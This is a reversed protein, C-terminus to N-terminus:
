PCKQTQPHRKGGSQKENRGSGCIAPACLRAPRHCCSYSACRTGCKRSWCFYPEGRLSAMWSCYEVFPWDGCGPQPQLIAPLEPEPPQTPNNGNFAFANGLNAPRNWIGAPDRTIFRGILPDLARSAIQYFGTEPDFRRGTFLFPNGLASQETLLEFATDFPDAVWNTGNNVSSALHQNGYGASGVGWLVGPVTTSNFVEVWYSGGAQAEFPVALQAEYIFEPAVVPQTISRGTAARHVNTGAVTTSLVAGPLGANNTRIRITFNDTPPVGGGYAGWWRLGRVRVPRSVSFDDAVWQGGNVDSVYATVADPSQVNVSVVPQGYDGYDAREIANGAADSLATVSSQDDTHYHFDASGRRMTVPDDGDLGTVFSALTNGQPDQEELERGGDHFIRAVSPGAAKQVRRGLADFTYLTPAATGITARVLLNRYDYQFARAGGPGSASILNGNADHQRNTEFPTATYQHVQADAPSPSTADLLYNGPVPDSTVNLRNGSGDLTYVSDREVPVVPSSVVTRTLRDAADYSYAHALRPGAIRTDAGATQNGEVNWSYARQDLVVGSGTHRNTAGAPQRAAHYAFQACTGNGNCRAEVRDLGLYFYQAILSGAAPPAPPPEICAGNCIKLVRNLGDYTRTVLRGGPYVCSIPNGAGDYTWTTVRDKPPPFAPPDLNMVERLLNCLSDYSRNALTENNRAQVMLSRGDFQRTEFTAGLVGPARAISRSVPRNLLDFSTVVVTLNADTTRVANDHVDYGNFFSENIQPREDAEPWSVTGSGTLAMTGDALRTVIRRDLADYAYRTTRGNDDTQAILRCSDDWVQSTVIDGAQLASAGNTNMDRVTLVLRDLGDFAHRVEADGWEAVQNNRSDYAFRNTHGGPEVTQTLRDLGDYTNTTSYFQPPNGLDSRDMETTVIVNGNADYTHNVSNTKPDVLSQLRNATDYVTATSYGRDDTVRIVQSNDSYLTLTTAYGDGLIAQTKPDFSLRDERTRRDMADYQLWTEALRVNGAGGNLDTLEGDLRVVICNHNADYQTRKVNGMADTTSIPRNYGDYATTTVRPGSEIGQSVRTENRNGDYDHQTTSPLSSGPARTERFLLDREDFTSAVVNFPDFGATAEGFGVRTRNRNADYAYETVVFQPRLAFAIAEYNLVGNLPHASGKERAVRAVRNLIEYDVITSQHTNTQLAGSDDRNEVDVRVLNDNADYYYDRAYRLGSGPTVERSTERVVQNLRNVTYHTDNGRAEVARVLNGVPDYEFTTTLAFGGADVIQQATYGRQPGAGYYSFADRRRHGSGNDPLWHSIVQGFVNYEWDEIATPVRHQTHLRNGRGDYTHLTHNGRADTHRTVFNVECCGGGLGGDYEFSEILTTQDGGLPGPIRRCVRLNGRSRRPGAPNLELEYVNEVVNGNPHMTRVPLSDTNWEHRTEFWDPDAPRVKGTPRNETEGTALDPVARGTYARRIVCRNGADFWFETVNGVRDNVIAKMIALGNALTPTQVHYTYNLTENTYGWVQRVVQACGCAAQPSWTNQLWAQENGDIVTLLNHNLKSDAFGKSYTYRNTKGGPFDNAAPTGTVAPAVVTKLDSFSGGPEDDRYHTYRVQRGTFDTVAAFFGDTDYSVTIIRDLTDVVGTLRGFADYNFQLANGNRDTIREIRGAAAGGGLPLFQWTGRDAFTLVFRGDPQFRGERFFQDAVFSGDPQRYFTDRRTNGDLVDVDVGNPIICINYSWDWGYGMPTVYCLCSRYKRAWVFDLGRGKICLDVQEYHFEGSFLYVNPPGCLAPRCPDSPGPQGPPPEPPEYITALTCNTQPEAPQNVRYFRSSANLPDTITAMSGNGMVEILTNWPASVLNNQYEVLYRKGAQTDFSLSFHTPGLQTNRLLPAGPATVTVPFTCQASNSSPDTAICLVLTTGIPFLSGSPPICQLSVHGSNDAAQVPYFVPTGSDKSCVCDVAVPQCQITPPEVDRCVIGIWSRGANGDDDVATIPVVIRGIPFFSGPPTPSSLTLAPDCSDAFEPWAYDVVAGAQGPDNNILLDPRDRCGAAVLKTFDVLTDDAILVDLFGKQALTGILDLTGGGALPLRALNLLVVEEAGPTWPVHTLLAGNTDAQGLQGTWLPNFGGNEAFGLSVLDNLSTGGAARLGLELTCDTVCEPMEPWSHVFTAGPTPDDYARTPQGQLSALLDPRPSAPGGGPLNPGGQETTVPQDLCVLPQPATTDGVTVTFTGSATNSSPDTASVTVVTQGLPFFSGPAHSYNVPLPGACADLATAMFNVPTGSPGACQVVPPAPLTLAPPTTDPVSVSAVASTIAGISNAVVVTYPGSDSPTVNPRAYASNTASSIANANFRWQYTLPQHGAASVSLNLTGGCSLTQSQPQISITPPLANVTLQFSTPTSDTGDGVTVTIRTMGYQNQTPTVTVTRNAGSGGFVINSNAVLVLNSSVGSLTLSATPTEVDGVTFALPGNTSNEVIVQNVISSINPADNVSNVLVNFSSSATAAGDSVTVTVRTTGFQNTAPTVTVTRNSASGGFALNSNPVLATNTSLGSLTLSGAATEVDGVTFALPATATDENIVQNTISSITPTDNVANVILVFSTSSNTTGDSVTVTIRTTGSQNAVPTVTLTRNSSSGGFALNANPVLVTNSSVGSVTLSGAPAEADNVTFALPGAVGDENISLDSITSITPASNGTLVTLTAVLSTVSGFSNTIVVTYNGADGATVSPFFLGQGTAGSVALGNKYWQFSIPLTGGAQATFSAQTGAAVTQSFPQGTFFPAAANGGFVATQYHAMIQSDNLAKNYLAVEDIEGDFFFEFGGPYPAVAGVRLPTNLNRSFDNFPGRGDWVGNVYVKRGVGPTFTSVLHTWTGIPPSNTAGTYASNADLDGVGVADGALLDPTRIMLHGYQNRFSSLPCLYDTSNFTRMWCEFTFDGTTVPPPLTSVEGWARNPLDFHVSTNGNANLAGPAGPAPPGAQNTYFGDFRGMADLMGPASLGDDLRYWSVPADAAILAEYSGASPSPVTISAIASTISGQSNTIVVQYTGSDTNTVGNLVLSATTRGALAAGNKKWQYALAGGAAVVSLKIAGGAYVPRSGAAVDQLIAPVTQALVSLNAPGGFATGFGNTVSADYSGNDAASLNTLSLSSRTAGAIPLGNKRWQYGLNPTGGADVVLTLPDGTYVPASPTQPHAFVNPGLNGVAAAYQSYTEGVSLARRFIAVEDMTGLFNRATAAANTFPDVGVYTGGEFPLTAHVVFNTAPTPNPGGPVFVIARDPQVILAAFNWAADLLSVGSNWRYTADDGDWNYTLDLGSVGGFKLGGATSYPGGPALQGRHFVLGADPPQAGGPRVWCTITLGNTNLNLPRVQMYGGTLFDVARNLSEFGPFDPPTPGILGASAPYVLDGAGATGFSGLNARFTDGPENLHYYVVPSFMQVQSFYNASNTRAQYHATITSLSLVSNYFAIEDARGRWYFSNDSRAGISFPGGNGPVYSSTALSNLLRSNVYIRAQFGDYTVVVHYYNSAVMNTAANLTLSPATGTLDYMRFSWGFTTQYLLWGARPSAFDGCSLACTVTNPVATGIVDPALWAEISFNSPPNLSPDYQTQVRQDRGDFYAATDAGTLAGVAGRFFAQGGHYHGDWGPGLFGLNAANTVPSTTPTTENLRWYTFPGQALVTSQYDARTPAALLLM